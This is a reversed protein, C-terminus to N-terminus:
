DFWGICMPVWRNCIGDASAMLAMMLLIGYFYLATRISDLRVKNRYKWHRYDICFQKFKSRKIVLKVGQIREM